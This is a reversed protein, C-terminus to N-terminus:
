PQGGNAACDILVKMARGSELLNFANTVEPLPVIDSVLRKAQIQGLALLRVAEEFDTRQYVRAGHITLERWFVRQLDLTKPVSHIAVVVLHGRVALCAVATDLGAQSASVEFCAGAGAGGTWDEVLAPVDTSAPDVVRLGLGQAVARRQPSVELVLVEASVITAVSAVLLGIPGGGVVVVKEGAALGARRVDHVAVATPEALAAIDLPLDAPVRVLVSAPVTWRRQLSGPSDVGMFNLNQCVHSNGALCAPCHGCWELPMVVAHDGPSWETVGHGVARVTGSMEHGIVAPVKVRRDMDGHLIHLDTGCIGTYAVDLQVEGPGPLREDRELIKMTRNGMYYGALM